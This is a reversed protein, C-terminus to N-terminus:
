GPARDGGRPPRRRRRLASRLQAATVHWHAIEHGDVLVVPVREAHRALLDPDGDIDTRVWDVGRETAVQDIVTAAQECLHCGARDLLTIRPGPASRRLLGM